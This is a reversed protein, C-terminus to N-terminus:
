ETHGFRQCYYCRFSRYPASAADRPPPRTFSREQRGRTHKDVKAVIELVKEQDKDGLLPSFIIVSSATPVLISSPVFPRVPWDTTTPEITNATKLLM